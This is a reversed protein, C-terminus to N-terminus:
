GARSLRVARAGTARTGARAVQDVAAKSACYMVNSGMASTAAISSVNIVLGNGSLALLGRFARVAAFTGRVNTALIDDILADDVADLDAHAVFRTTAACNILMDARGYRRRVEEAAATVAATNTVPIPLACHTHDALATV